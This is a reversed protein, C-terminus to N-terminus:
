NIIFIKENKIKKVLQNDTIKNIIKIDQIRKITGSKITILINTLPDSSKGWDHKNLFERQKNWSEKLPQLIYSYSRNKIKPTFPLKFGFIYTPQPIITTIQFIRLTGGITNITNKLKWEDYRSTRKLIVFLLLLRTKLKLLISM